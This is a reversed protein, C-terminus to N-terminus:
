SPTGNEIRKSVPRNIRAAQREIRVKNGQFGSVCDCYVGVQRNVFDIFDRLLNLEAHLRTTDMAEYQDKDNLPVVVRLTVVQIRM